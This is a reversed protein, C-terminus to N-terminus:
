KVASLVTQVKKRVVSITYSPRDGFVQRELEDLRRFAEALSSGTERRIQADIAARAQEVLTQDSTGSARRGISRSWDNLTLIFARKAYFYARGLDQGEGHLRAAEQHCWSGGRKPDVFGELCGGSELRGVLEGGAHLMLPLARTIERISLEQAM